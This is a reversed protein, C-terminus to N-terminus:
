KVPFITAPWKFFQNSYWYNSLEFNEHTVTVKEFNNHANKIFNERAGCFSASSVYKQNKLTITTYKYQFTM